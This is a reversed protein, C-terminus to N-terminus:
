VTGNNPLGTPSDPAKFKHIDLSGTRTPDPLSPSAASASSALGVLVVGLAAIAAIAMFVARTRTRLGAANKLSM